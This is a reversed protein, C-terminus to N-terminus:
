DTPTAGTAPTKAGPGFPGLGFGARSGQLKTLDTVATATDKSGAHVALVRVQDQGAVSSIGDRQADVATSPSVAYTHSYGDTSTVTISGASVPGAKGVQVLVTQYGGNQTRVTFQGHLVSGFAGLGKAGRPLGRHGHGPRVPANPPATTAPTSSSAAFAIGAGGLALGVALGGAMAIRQLRNFRPGPAATSPLFPGPIHEFSM